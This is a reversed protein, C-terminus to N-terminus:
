ILMSGAIAVISTMNTPLQMRCLIGPDKCQVALKVVDVAIGCQRGWPEEHGCYKCACRVFGNMPGDRWNLETCDCDCM